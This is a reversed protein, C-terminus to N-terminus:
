LAQLISEMNGTCCSLDIDVAFLYVFRKYSSTKRKPEMVYRAVDNRPPKEPVPNQYVAAYPFSFGNPLENNV